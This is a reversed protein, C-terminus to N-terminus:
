RQAEKAAETALAIGVMMANMEDPHNGAIHLMGRLILSVDLGNESAVTNYNDAMMKPLEILFPVLMEDDDDSM